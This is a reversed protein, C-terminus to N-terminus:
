VSDILDWIFLITECSSVMRIVHRIGGGGFSHGCPLIMADDMLAGRFKWLTVCLDFESHFFRLNQM